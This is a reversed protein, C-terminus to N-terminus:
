PQKECLAWVTLGPLKVGLRRNLYLLILNDINLISEVMRTIVVGHNWSGIGKNEPAGKKFLRELQLSIYRLPLLSSFLYGSSRCTLGAAQTLQELQALRYRRHHGLFRDHSSFLGAFAPATILVHCGPATYKKTIERLFGIDDEVHEVVDLLLITNYVRSALSDYSNHFHVRPEQRPLEALQTESLHIDIADIRALPADKCVAAVTYGDGCGIDLVNFGQRGPIEKTLITKLARARSLEWPHRAQITNQRERLDM